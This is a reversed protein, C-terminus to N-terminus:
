AFAGSAKNMSLRTYTEREAAAARRTLQKYVIPLLISGAIAIADVFVFKRLALKLSYYFATSGILDVAVFQRIASMPVVVILIERQNRM